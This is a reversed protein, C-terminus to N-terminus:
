DTSQLHCTLMKKLNNWNRCGVQQIYQLAIKLAPLIPIEHNTSIFDSLYLYFMKLFYIWYLITWTWCYLKIFRVYVSCGVKSTLMDNHDFHRGYLKPTEGPVNEIKICVEQGKRAIDVPKHNSEISSIVGLYVFQFLVYNILYWKNLYYM